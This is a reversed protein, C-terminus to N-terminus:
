QQRCAVDAPRCGRSHKKQCAEEATRQPHGYGASEASSAKHVPYGAGDVEESAIVGGHYVMFDGGAHDVAAVIYTRHEDGHEVVPVIYPVRVVPGAPRVLHENVLV